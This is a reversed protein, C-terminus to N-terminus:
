YYNREATNFEFCHRGAGHNWLIDYREMREFNFTACLEFRSASIVRYEYPEGTEPDTVSPYQYLAQETVEDLTRPLAKVPRPTTIASKPTRDDYIISYVENHIQRLDALRREDFRRERQTAPSGVIVIGWVFAAAVIVTTAAFFNRNLSRYDSTETKLSLFYYVFTLGAIVLVTFVKLLFRASLEGELLSFVLVIVDVMLSSAAVFLTIYTLWRRIGSWAKEPHKTIERHILRVMWILLPFSVIIAAMGWRIGSFDYTTSYPYETALDPFARNIYQFFLVVTSIVLTYLSAFSLLHMFGERAGGVDPPTPVPMDLGEASLARAIEKEKWGASLLLMRITSHDMGKKRAHTIFENLSDKM